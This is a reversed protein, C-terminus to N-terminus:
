RRIEGREIKAVIEAVDGDLLGKDRTKTLSEIAEYVIHSNLDYLANRAHYLDRGSGGIGVTDPRLLCAARYDQDLRRAREAIADQLDNLRTLILEVAEEM